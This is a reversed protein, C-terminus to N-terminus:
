PRLAVARTFYAENCRSACGAASDLLDLLLLGSVPEVSAGNFFLTGSAACDRDPQALRLAQLGWSQSGKAGQLTVRELRGPADGQGARGRTTTVSGLGPCAFVGTAVDSGEPSEIEPCPIAVRFSWRALTRNIKAVLALHRDVTSPVGIDLAFSAVELDDDVRKVTLHSTDSAPHSPHVSAVVRKGPPRRADEGVATAFVQEFSVEGGPMTVEVLGMRGPGPAVLERRGPEGEAERQGPAEPTRARAGSSPTEGVSEVVPPAVPEPRPAEARSCGAVLAALALWRARTAVRTEGGPLGGRREGTNSSM